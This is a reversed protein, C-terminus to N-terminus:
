ATLDGAKRFSGLLGQWLAGHLKLVQLQEVEQLARGGAAGPIHMEKCAGPTTFCKYCPGQKAQWLLGRTASSRSYSTALVAPTAASREWMLVAALTVAWVPGSCNAPARRPQSRTTMGAPTGRLGPM